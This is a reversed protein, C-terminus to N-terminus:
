KIEHLRTYHYLNHFVAVVQLSCLWPHMCIHISERIARRPEVYTDSQAFLLLSVIVHGFLESAPSRPLQITDRHPRTMTHGGTTFSLDFPLNPPIIPSSTASDVIDLWLACERKSENVITWPQCSITWLDRSSMYLPSPSSSDGM